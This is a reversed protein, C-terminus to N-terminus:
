KVIDKGTNANHEVTVTRPKAAKAREELLQIYKASYASRKKSEESPTNRKAVVPRSSNRMKEIHVYGDEYVTAREHEKDNVIQNKRPGHLRVRGDETSNDRMIGSFVYNTITAWEAPDVLVVPRRVGDVGVAYPVGDTVELRHVETGANAALCCASLLLLINMKM